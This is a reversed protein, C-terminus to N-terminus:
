LGRRLSELAKLAADFFDEPTSAGSTVGIHAYDSLTGLLSKVEDMDSALFAPCPAVDCLRRCNASTRSGLVLLADGGFRRVADQRAKTAPCPETVGVVEPGGRRLKEVRLRAEDADMSTQVVVGVREGPVPPPAGELEGLIGKVEAHDPDGVVVVPIGCRALDRAARHSSAVRPCTADIVRLGKETARRRVAPSVGHASFVVTAGDPVDEVDEVFRCGRAKLADMVLESHVVAHLCYAGGSAEAAAVAAKVGDCMGHPCLAEM